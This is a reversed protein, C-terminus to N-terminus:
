LVRKRRGAAYTLAEAWKVLTEARPLEVRGHAIKWMTMRNIRAFRALTTYSLGLRVREKEM